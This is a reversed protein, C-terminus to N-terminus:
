LPPRVSDNPYLPQLAKASRDYCRKQELKRQELAKRTAKFDALKPFLEKHHTPFDTRLRRNMLRQAPSGIQQFPANRYSLVSLYPDQNTAKAKTLLNKM